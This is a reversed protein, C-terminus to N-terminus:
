DDIDLVTTPAAPRADLGPDALVAGVLGPPGGIVVERTYEPIGVFWSRDHPWVVSPLLDLRALATAAHLPGTWLYRARHPYDLPAAAPREARRDALEARADALAQRLETRAARARRGRQWWRPRDEVALHVGMGPATGPDDGHDYLVGWGEWLGVHVPQDGTPPALLDLLAELREAAGAPDIDREDPEDQDAPFPVVAYADYVSPVIADVTPGFGGLLPLIWEGASPDDDWRAGARALDDTM